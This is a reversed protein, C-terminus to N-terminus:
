EGVWQEAKYHAREEGALKETLYPMLGQLEDMLTWPPNIVIMGAATMGIADSDPAIGIEFNQINKIGSAVLAKQMKEIRYRQVVPYWIAYTGTAFKKHAKLVFDIVNQYDQKIEYPPDIMVLGRKQKPPLLGLAHKFCDKFQLHVQPNRGVFESLLGSDTPHIEHLFVQDARINHEQIAQISFWPSGPYQTLSETPNFSQIKQIYRALLPYKEIEAITDKHWFRGIGDVYELTKQAHEETLRYAGAGAHTDVVCYPKAKKNLHDLIAIQVIHKLVDAYNGAHFSHRYSLM